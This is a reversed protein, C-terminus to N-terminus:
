ALPVPVPESLAVPAIRDACGSRSLGSQRSVSVFSYQRESKRFFTFAFVSVFAFAWWALSRLAGTMLFERPTVLKAGWEHIEPGFREYAWRKHDSELTEVGTRLRVFFAEGQKGVKDPHFRRALRRWHGKVVGSPDHEIAERPLGLLSYYNKELGTSQAFYISFVSYALYGLVLAIRARRHHSQALRQANALHQPSANPPITPRSSPSLRYFLSVLANTFLNPLITWCLISTANVALGGGGSGGGMSTKGTAPVTAALDACPVVRPMLLKPTERPDSTKTLLAVISPRM